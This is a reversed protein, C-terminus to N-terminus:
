NENKLFDYLLYCFFLGTLFFLFVVLNYAIIDNLSHQFKCSDNCNEYNEIPIVKGRPIPFFSIKIENDVGYRSFIKSHIAEHSTIYGLCSLYIWILLITIILTFKLKM